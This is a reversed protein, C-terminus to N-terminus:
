HFWMVKQEEYQTEKQENLLISNMQSIRSKIQEYIENPYIKNYEEKSLIQKLAEDTLNNRVSTIVEKLESLYNNILYEMVDNNNFYRFIGNTQIANPIFATGYDYAVPELYSNTSKDYIIKMNDAKRDYHDIILDMFHIELIRKRIKEYELKTIGPLTLISAFLYEFYAEFKEQNNPKSDLNDDYNLSKHEQNEKLVNYSFCYDNNEDDICLEIEACPVGCLNLITSALLERRDEGFVGIMCDNQKLIGTRNNHPNTALYMAATGDVSFDYDINTLENINLKQM